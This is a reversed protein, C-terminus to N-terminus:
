AHAIPLVTPGRSRGLVCAGGLRAGGDLAAAPLVGAGVRLAVRVEPVPGGVYADLAARLSARKAPDAAWGLAGRDEGGELRVEVGAEPVRVRAGLMRGIPAGIGAPELIPLAAGSRERVRVPLGTLARLLGALGAATPRGVFWAGLAAGGRALASCALRAGPAAALPASRGALFAVERLAESEAGRALAFAESSRACGEEVAQMLRDLGGDLWEALAPNRAIREVDSGPLAAGPSAPGPAGLTLEIRDDRAAVSDVEAPVFRLSPRSRYVLRPAAVGAPGAAAGAERAGRRAAAVAAWLRWRHPRRRLDAPLPDPSGAGGSLEPRAPLGVSESAEPAEAAAPVRGPGAEPSM